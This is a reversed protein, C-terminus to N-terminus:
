SPTTEATEGLELFAIGVHLTDPVKRIGSGLSTSSEQRTLPQSRSTSVLYQLGPLQAVALVRGKGLDHCNRHAKGTDM